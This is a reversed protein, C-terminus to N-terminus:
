FWLKLAALLNTATSADDATTFLVNAEGGLSLGGGLGYDYAIKPGYYIDTSSNSAAGVTESSVGLGLKGGMQLGPFMEAFHYNLEGGFFKLNADATQGGTNISGRGIYNFFGGAMWYPSLKYNAIVGFGVHSGGGNSLLGAGLQAGVSWLSNLNLESNMVSGWGATSALLGLGSAVTSWKRGM